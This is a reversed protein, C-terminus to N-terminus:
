RNVSPGSGLIVDKLPQAKLGRDKEQKDNIDIGFKVKPLKAINHSLKSLCSIIVNSKM